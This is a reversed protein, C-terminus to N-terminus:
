DRSRQWPWLALRDGVGGPARAARSRHRLFLDMPRELLLHIAVGAGLAAAAGALLAVAVGGPGALLGTRAAVQRVVALVFPHSLYLAYSAAGVLLLPRSALSWGRAELMVVGAVLAAGALGITLPQFGIAGYFPLVLIAAAGGAALVLAPLPRGGRALRPYGLGLLMGWGFELLLPSTYFRAVDGAPRLVLGALVLGGLMGFTAAVRGGAGPLLLGAAFLAYFFMEYNLTWGVFLVPHMEGNSKTFPVFFLSKALEVPDASTSKLLTPALVAVAFVGLTLAWYLPVIRIVRNALFQVPGLPRRAITYVMVFGSIVFFVDVGYKGFALPRELQALDFEAMHFVVVMFAALARLVQLNNLLM